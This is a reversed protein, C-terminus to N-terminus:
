RPKAAELARLAARRLDLAGSKSAAELAARADDPIRKGAAAVRALALAAEANGAETERRLLDWGGTGLLAQGEAALVPVLPERSRAGAELIAPGKPSPRALRLLSLAAAVRVGEERRDLAKELAAIVAPDPSNCQGLANALDRALREPAGGLRTALRGAVGGARPGLTALAGAAQLAAGPDPGKEVEAALRDLVAPSGDGCAALALAADLALEPEKALIGALPSLDMGSTAPGFNRFAQVAARRVRAEPDSLAGMVKPPCLPDDGRLRSLALIAEVRVQPETRAAAALLAEVVRDPVERWAAQDSGQRLVGAAITAIEPDKEELLRVWVKGNGPGEKQLGLVRARRLAPDRELRMLVVPDDSKGGCAALMLVLPLTSNLRM